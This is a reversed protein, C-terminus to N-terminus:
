LYGLFEPTDSPYLGRKTDYDICNKIARLQTSASTCAYQSLGLANIWNGLKDQYLFESKPYSPYAGWAELDHVSHGTWDVGGDPMIIRLTQHDSIGRTWLQPRGNCKPLKVGKYIM